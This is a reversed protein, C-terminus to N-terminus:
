TFGGGCPNELSGLRANIPNASTGTIDGPGHFGITLDRNGVLNYGGSIFNDTEGFDVVDHDRNGAIITNKVFVTSTGPPPRFQIILGNSLNNAITSNEITVRNDNGEIDVGHEGNSSITVQQIKIANQSGNVDLGDNFDTPDLGNQNISSNQVTVTNNNGTIAIGDDSALRITSNVVDVINNHGVTKIVNGMTDTERMGVQFNDENGVLDSNVISVRNFDGDIRIGDGAPLFPLPFFVNAGSPLKIRVVARGIVTASAVTLNNRNFGEPIEIAKDGNELTLGNL